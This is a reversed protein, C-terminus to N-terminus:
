KHNNDKVGRSLALKDKLCYATMSLERLGFDEHVGSIVFRTCSTFKAFDFKM